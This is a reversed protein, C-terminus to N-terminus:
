QTALVAAPSRRAARRAPLWAALLAGFLAGGAVIGLVAIPLDVTPAIGLEDAFRGWLIRGVAIGVPIGGLVGVVMTTLAQWRVSRGVQTSRFGLARFVAYDIRRANVSAGISLTLALLLALALVGALLAPATRMSDANVIEPPRVPEVYTLPPAGAADWRQVGTRISALFQTPRVGEDLHVGTFSTDRHLTRSPVVLFAGVGLGTRDSGFQGIAPLVATGVVRAPWSGRVAGGVTIRVRDGNAIGLREATARGLVAEGPARPARGTVIPFDVAEDGMLVPVPRGAVSGSEIALWDWSRVGPRHELTDRVAATRTDGYGSGTVVGLQWPWGYRRPTGTVGTLNSGFIATAVVAAIAVVAATPLLLARGGALAASVGDAIEPRLARRISGPGATRLPRTPRRGVALATPVVVAFTAPLVGALFPLVIAGPASVARDPAVRAVQGVPGIPSLAVGVIMAGLLGALLGIAPPLACVALRTSRGAGLARLVVDTEHGDRMSRAAALAVVVFTAVLAVWGFIDLAVVIPRISHRVRADTDRRTTTIPYYSADAALDGIRQRLPGNLALLRRQAIRAVAAVRAPDDLELAYYRYLISCDRPLVSTLLREFDATRPVTGPECSYRRAVDPSVVLEEHAYLPDDLVEDALRGFGSIRLQEIRIPEVVSGPDGSTEGAVDLGSWLFGIPVRDGLRLRHGVVRSLKTRYQETVFVERPGTPRRGEDVVLRDTDLFRGDTSGYLFGANDTELDAMTPRRVEPDAYGALMLSYTSVAQVHPLSRIARDADTTTLSPNIVLDAVRARAVHDPYARDTRHAAVFAGLAAGLGLAAALAVAVAGAWRRRLESRGVIGITGVAANSGM